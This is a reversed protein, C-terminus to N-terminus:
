VRSSQAEAWTDSTGEGESRHDREVGRARFSLVILGRQGQDAVRKAYSTAREVVESAPAMVVPEGSEDEFTVDATADQLAHESYAQSLAALCSLARIESELDLAGEQSEYWGVCASFELVADAWREQDVNLGVPPPRM